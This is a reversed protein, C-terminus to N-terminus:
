MFIRKVVGVPDLISVKINADLLKIDRSLHLLDLEKMMM